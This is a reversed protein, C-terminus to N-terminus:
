RRAGTPQVYLRAGFATVFEGEATLVQGRHNGHDLVIVRGRRDVVIGRPRHFRAAGVGSGGWEARLEGDPGFVAVRDRAVDTVLLRGDPLLAAGYPEALVGAGVARLFRGDDPDFALVGRNGRDVVWLTEGDEALLLDTPLLLEGTGTGRRGFARVLEFRPSLVLVRPGLLDVLHIRGAADREIAGPEVPGDLISALDASQVLHALSPDFRLEDDPDHDLRFLEVRRGGRDSVALTWDAATLALDEARLFSGPEAGHAGLESVLIPVDRSLEFVAVRQPEPLFLALLDGASALPMGYHGAPEASLLAPDTSYREPEGAAPGFLQVRDELPECVAVFPAGAARPAVAVDSPYHLKGRGERPRLAHIGWHYLLKGGEDFVQVRQGDRDAVYVRGAQWAVGTPSSFFGPHPGLEGWADRVSGDAALRVVRHNGTDAVWLGGEDDFAVDEPADFRGAGRGDGGAVVPAEGDAGLVQVRDNGTDAVAVRGDRVDIGQPYRLRGPEGGWGGVRALVTGDRALVVIRSEVEDSVYVRGESGLAIGAPARLEGAGLEGLREGGRALVVVRGARSAAVFIRGQTDIAARAAGAISEVEGAPEGFRVPEPAEQAFLAPAVLSVARALTLSM